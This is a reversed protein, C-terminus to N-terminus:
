IDFRNTLKMMERYSLREIKELKIIKDYHVIWPDMADIPKLDNRMLDFKEKIKYM